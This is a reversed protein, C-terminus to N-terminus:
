SLQGKLYEVRAELKRIFLMQLLKIDSRLVEVMGILVVRNQENIQANTILEAHTYPTLAGFTVTFVAFASVLRLYFNKM